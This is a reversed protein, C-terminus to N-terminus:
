STYSPRREMQRERSSFFVIQVSGETVDINILRPSFEKQGDFFRSSTLQTVFCFHRDIENPSFVAVVVVHRPFVEVSLYRSITFYCHRFLSLSFPSCMENRRQDTQVTRDNVFRDAHFFILRCYCTHIVESTRLCTENSLLAFCVDSAYNRTSVLKDPVAWLFCFMRKKKKTGM